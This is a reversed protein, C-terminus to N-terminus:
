FSSVSPPLPTPYWPPLPPETLDPDLAKLSFFPYYFLPSSVGGPPFIGTRLPAEFPISFTELLYPARLPPLVLIKQLTAPNVVVANEFVETPPERAERPLPHLPPGERFLSSRTVHCPAQLFPLFPTLPILAGSPPTALRHVPSPNPPSVTSPLSGSVAHRSGGV